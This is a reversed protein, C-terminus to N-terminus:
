NLISNLLGIGISTWFLTQSALKVDKRVLQQSCRPM